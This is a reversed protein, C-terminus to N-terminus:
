IESEAIRTRLAAVRVARKDADPHGLERLYDVLIQMLGAARAFDGEQEIALGLNWSTNAEGQWHGIEGAIALRQEYYEIALRTEGLKKYAVGLNGLANGEGRRDGIERAIALRQEYYEIALRTEGLRKYAVGLNGLAQGEGRRDRTDRAIALHQEYYEIARRTEGLVAYAIGLNGLVNGEGWRDGIDRAIALDQEYLGIAHQTEGLTAYALGLDNLHYGESKRDERQRAASLAIELWRIRERPHQRLGLLFAGAGPYGNCIRAAAEDEKLRESAWAFGARVNDWEADFLRLGRDLPEGGQLYLSNASRLLEMYHEAHRRRAGEREADELQHDAFSRALDQLRYKVDKEEWEVLSSRVLEGLADKAPDIELEWIAAAAPADFTSPFVALLRWLQPRDEKLLNYSVTLAVEVKDFWEKGEELRRVYDSPSLELREALASGALRLALPLHGCLRAITEATEGIRPAITLLLERADEAPLEDLDRAFLGPLRFHFRSTVLLLSGAPPVLPEVQEQDAANDMLLLVRKGDLVSRYLGALDAESGQPRVEPHFARIVHVMAQAPTLPQPDVGKLDLYLQADPYRTKLKEALKLALATKGIGGM